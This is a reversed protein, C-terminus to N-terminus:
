AAFEARASMALAGQPTEAWLEATRGDTSPQGCVKFPATDFLPSVGRYVFAALRAHPSRERVLELLYTAILPGHV